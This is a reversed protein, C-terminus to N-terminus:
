SVLAEPFLTYSLHCFSRWQSLQLQLYRLKDLLKEGYLQPIEVLELILYGILVMMIQIKVGNISKTILKDLKLNSKLFKWLIEIAWRHRYTEAIEENTMTTVNTALRYERQSELDCFWVVRYKDHNFQTQMNNKIRVIFLTENESMEEIFDWSAFGRDMIGVSNDPIITTVEELYKADHAQGFSILCEGTNCSTLNVGTLLKVQHYEKEWFLKSTLAIVTSDIPFLSLEMGGYKRRVQQVLQSYIRNYYTMERSKCAKSFTSIDGKIATYKLKFFLDRMSMLSRDLVFTLWIEFFKRSDLVPYDSKPLQKLISKVIQSFSHMM